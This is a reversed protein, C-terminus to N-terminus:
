TERYLKLESPIFGNFSVKKNINSIGLKTYRHSVTFVRQSAVFPSLVKSSTKFTQKEFVAETQPFDGSRHHFTNTMFICSNEQTVWRLLKMACRSTPLVKQRPLTICSLMQMHGIDLEFPSVRASDVKFFFSQTGLSCGQLADRSQVILILPFENECRSM